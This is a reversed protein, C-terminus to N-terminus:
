FGLERIRANRDLKGKQDEFHNALILQQVIEDMTKGQEKAALIMAISLHTLNMNRGSDEIFRKLSKGQSWDLSDM